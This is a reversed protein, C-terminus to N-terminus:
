SRLLAASDVRGRRNLVVRLNSLMRTAIIAISLTDRSTRDFIIADTRVNPPVVSRLISFSSRLRCMLPNLFCHGTSPLGSKAHGFDLTARNTSPHKQCPQGRQSRGELLLLFNQFDFITDFRRRSMLTARLSRLAPHLTSRTHSHRISSSRVTKRIIRATLRYDYGTQGRKGGAQVILSCGKAM